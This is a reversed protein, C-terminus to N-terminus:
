GKRQARRKKRAQAPPESAPLMTVIFAAVNAAEAAAMELAAERTEGVGPYRDAGIRLRAHWRSSISAPGIRQVKWDAARDDEGLSIPINSYFGDPENRAPPSFEIGRWTFGGPGPARQVAKRASM